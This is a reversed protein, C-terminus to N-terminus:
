KCATTNVQSELRQRAQEPQEDGAAATAAATTASRQAAQMKQANTRRDDDLHLFLSADARRKRGSGPSAPLLSRLKGDEERM